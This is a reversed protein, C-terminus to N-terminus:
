WVTECYNRSSSADIELCTKKAVCLLLYHELYLFAWKQCIKVGGNWCKSKMTGYVYPVLLFQMSLGVRKFLDDGLNELLRRCLAASAAEVDVTLLTWTHAVHLLYLAVSYLGM